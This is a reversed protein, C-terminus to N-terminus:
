PKQAIFTAREPAPYGEITKNHDDPDLFDKLSEYPMWSTTRQEETSTQNIDVVKIQKFGCRQLWQKMTDVSPLFWVNRMKAYRNDPVLSEGQEGEVVLTELVLEGGKRLTSKLQLLHDIPSRRHYFVGMSFVTDFAEMNKPLAEIGMPLIHVPKEGIFHKMAQFQMWFLWSPDIGIVLRAGEGHMRWCHYGNGCGIDLVTRKKLPSIHDKIRNWKWDSHWETDILLDNIQYPGKRWPSLQKLSAELQVADMSASCTVQLNDATLDVDCHVIEPLQKLASNWREYDGHSEPSLSELQEPLQTAWKELASDQMAQYLPEYLSHIDSM